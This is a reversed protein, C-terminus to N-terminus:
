ARDVGGRRGAAARGAARQRHHDFSNGLFLLLYTVDGAPEVTYVRSPIAGPEKRPHLLNAVKANVLRM